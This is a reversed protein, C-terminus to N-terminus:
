ILALFIPGWWKRECVPVGGDWGQAMCNRTSRRSAMIYSCHHLVYLLVSPFRWSLQISTACSPGKNWFVVSLVEAKESGKHCTYEVRSGFVFDEGLTLRFDGFQVDGPHGCSRAECLCSLCLMHDFWSSLAQASIYTHTHFILMFFFLM